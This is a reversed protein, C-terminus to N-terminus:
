KLAQAATERISRCLSAAGDPCESSANHEIRRLDETDLTTNIHRLVFPKLPQNPGMLSVLTPLTEWHDVLLRAVAESSGEAISGDDCQRYKKFYVNITGWDDLSDVSQDAAEAQAPTCQTTQPKAHAASCACSFIPLTLILLKRILM